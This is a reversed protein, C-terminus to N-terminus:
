MLFINKWKTMFAQEDEDGFTVHVAIVDDNALLKAYYISKDVVTTISQIPVIALNRDVVPIDHIDIESRLECAINEYHVHIRIFFYLLLYFLLIPWVQNLKTILLIMFVIFTITGGILNITLKIGWREPRERLWKLVMGFQALTFPIFCRGAYLPILNETM